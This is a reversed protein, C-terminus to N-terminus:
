SAASYAAKFLPLFDKFTRTGRKQATSTRYDGFMKGSRIAAGMETYNAALQPALGAALLGEELQADTFPVWPLNPIGITNGIAAAISTTDLEDSVLYQVTSNTFNLQQLAEAAAAAIDETSSLVIKEETGGFNSGIIGATKILSINGLFNTYFYGPRLKLLNLGPVQELAKEALYLGSVPGCGDPLDAGISSLLVAYPVGTQRIAAAYNEGIKGIEAKWNRPQQFPPIMLYVADAGSFSRALFALDEVSGIAAQAGADTLEKLNAASRGIVTVAHGKKLLELALPKSIHGAGGTIVYHM